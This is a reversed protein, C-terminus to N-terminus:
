KVKQELVNNVDINQALTPDSAKVSNLIEKTMIIFERAARSLYRGKHYALTLTRMTSLEETPPQKISFYLPHKLINGFWVLTDPIITIGLGEAVLAHAAETSRTTLLIKPKFGAQQCLDITTQRLRHGLVIFSDERLDALSIQPRSYPPCTSDGAKKSLRHNPPVAILLEETLIPEYAFFDEQIPLTMISLDTTGKKAYEELEHVTGEMLFVDIGPFKRKFLPLVKPLIYSSRFTSLGITLRGKKLNTIDDLQQSLQVNMDLINRAMEIYLEGAFTPQLPITSRDFLQLGLRNELKTIYQSLSPQAMYLKQAAKSFSKEEAVKLVYQLERFSM